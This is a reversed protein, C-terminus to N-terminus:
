NPILVDGEIVNSWWGVYLPYHGRTMNFSMSALDRQAVHPDIDWSTEVWSSGDHGLAMAAVNTACAMDNHHQVDIWTQNTQAVWSYAWGITSCENHHPYVYHSESATAHQILAFLAAAAILLVSLRVVTGHFCRVSASRM